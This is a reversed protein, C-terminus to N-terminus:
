KKTDLNVVYKCLHTMFVICLMIRKPQTTADSIFGINCSLSYKLQTKNFFTWTNALHAGLRVVRNPELTGTQGQVWFYRLTQLLLYDNIKENKTPSIKNCYKSWPLQCMISPSKRMPAGWWKMWGHELTHM